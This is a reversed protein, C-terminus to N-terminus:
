LKAVSYWTVEPYIVKTKLAKEAEKFSIFRLPKVKFGDQTRSRQRLQFSRRDGKVPVLNNDSNRCIVEIM